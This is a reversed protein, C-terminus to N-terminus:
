HRRNKLLSSGFAGGLSAAVIFVVCLFLLGAGMILALGEPSKLQAAAAQAQPDASRAAAKDVADILATKLEGSNRFIAMELAMLLAYIGFGFGGTIAGLKAGSGRALPGSVRRGYLLVALAGATLLGLGFTGFPLMMSMAALIGGWLAAPLARSWLLAGTVSPPGLTMQTPPTDVPPFAVETPTEILVRIQPAGCHRCFPQGDEVAEGCHHCAHEV